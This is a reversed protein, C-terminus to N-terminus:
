HTLAACDLCGSGTQLAKATGNVQLGNADPRKQSLRRRHWFSRWVGCGVVFDEAQQGVGMHAATERDAGIIDSLGLPDGDGRHLFLNLNLEFLDVLLDVGEGPLCLFNSRPRLNGVLDVLALHFEDGCGPM